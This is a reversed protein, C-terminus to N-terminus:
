LMAARTLADGHMPNTISDTRKSRLLLCALRPLTYHQASRSLTRPDPVDRVLVTYQAPSVLVPLQSAGKSLDQEGKGVRAGMGGVTQVSSAFNLGPIAMCSTLRLKVM